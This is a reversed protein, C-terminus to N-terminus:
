NSLLILHRDMAGHADPGGSRPDRDGQYEPAPWPYTSDGFVCQNQLWPMTHSFERRQNGPIPSDEAMLVESFERRGCTVAGVIVESLPELDLARSTMQIAWTGCNVADARGRGAFEAFEECHAKEQPGNYGIANGSRIAEEFLADVARREV